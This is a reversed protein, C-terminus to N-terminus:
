AIPSRSPHKYIIIVYFEQPTSLRLKSERLPERDLGWGGSVLAGQCPDSSQAVDDPHLHLLPLALGSKDDTDIYYRYRVFKRISEGLCRM